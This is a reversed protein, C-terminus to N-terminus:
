ALVRGRHVARRCCAVASWGLGGWNWVGAPLLWLGSGYLACFGLRPAPRGCWGSFNSSPSILTHESPRSRSTRSAPACPRRSRRRGRERRWAAPPPPPTTTPAWATGTDLTAPGTAGDAVSATKLRPASSVRWCSGGSGTGPSRSLGVTMNPRAPGAWECPDPSLRVPSGMLAWGAEM